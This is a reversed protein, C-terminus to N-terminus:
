KTLPPLAEPFRARWLAKDACARRRKITKPNM